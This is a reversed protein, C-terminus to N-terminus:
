FFDKGWQQWEFRNDLGISRAMALVEDFPLFKSTTCCIPPGHTHTHTSLRDEDLKPFVTDALLSVM